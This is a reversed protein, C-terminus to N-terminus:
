GSGEARAAHTLVQNPSANGSGSTAQGTARLANGPSGLVTHANVRLICNRNKTFKRIKITLGTLGAHARPQFNPCSAERGTLARATRAFHLVTACCTLNKESKKSSESKSRFYSIFIM